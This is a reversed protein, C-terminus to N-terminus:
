ESAPPLQTKGETALIQGWLGKGNTPKLLIRACSTFSPLPVGQRVSHLLAKPCM